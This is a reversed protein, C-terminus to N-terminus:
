KKTQTIVKAPLIPQTGTFPGSFELISVSLAPSSFPSTYQPTINKSIVTNQSPTLQKFGVVDSKSMRNIVIDKRITSQNVIMISRKTNDKSNIALAFLDPDGTETSIINGDPLTGVMNWFNAAPRLQYGGPNLKGFNADVDTWPLVSSAGNQLASITTLADFIAGKQSAMRTDNASWSINFENLQIPINLGKEVLASRLSNTSWQPYMTARYFIDSDTDVKNGSMYIHYSLFDLTRPNTEKSAESLFEKVGEIRETRAFSPGGIVLDSQTVKMAKAVINYVKGLEVMQRPLQNDELNVSYDYDRENFVEFTKINLKEEQNIIKVLEQSFSALNGYESPDLLNSVVVGNNNKVPNKKMWSPAEPLTISFDATIGQARWGRVMDAFQRIKVRDWSKTTNNAWARWNTPADGQISDHFRITGPQIQKISQIYKADNGWYVTMAGQANLGLNSKNFPYKVSNWDTYLTSTYGASATQYNFLGLTLSLVAISAVSFIYLKRSSLSM